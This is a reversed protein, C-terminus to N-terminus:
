RDRGERLGEELGEGMAELGQELDRMMGGLERGLERMEGDTPVLERASELAGGIVDGFVESTLRQARAAVNRALGAALMARIRGRVPEIAERYGATFERRDSQDLPELEAILESVLEQSTISGSEVGGAHREGLSEGADRASLACGLALLAGLAIGIMSTGNRPIGIMPIGIMSIRRSRPQMSGSSSM